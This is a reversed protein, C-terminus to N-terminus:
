EAAGGAARRLEAPLRGPRGDAQLVVITVTASFLARGDADAVVDQALVARAPTASLLRTRVTLRNDLTAPATFKAAIEHVAFAVGRDRLMALQDIGLRRVWDSRAREIYKFYNAHYVIGGMDTDEYFVTVPFSHMVAAYPRCSAVALGSRPTPM